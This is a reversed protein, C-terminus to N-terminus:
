RITGLRVLAMRVNPTEGLIIRQNQSLTFQQGPKITLSPVTENLVTFSELSRNKMHWTALVQNYEFSAKPTSDTVASPPKDPYLHWEYIHRDPYAVIKYGDRVFQGRMGSVPRFLDLVALSRTAQWKTGCWPCSLNQTENFAFFGMECNPNVCPIIRDALRVLASEWEVAQPRNSPHHLGDIFARQMLHQIENGLIDSTIKLSPPRNSHDTPHEIYLANQGLRLQEDEEANSSHFKPGLLPHKLLLIQYLLIALAHRDTLISPQANASVIEPAMFGPTGNVAPPLIGPIVLGDLDIIAIEGTTPDVLCNKYALDSHCLGMQHLRRTARSLRVSIRVYGLWNGRAAKPLTKRAKPLLIWDLRKLGSSARPMVVGLRPNIVVGTPWCFYQKWYPEDKVANFRTTIAELIQRQNTPPHFYLKVISLNDMSVFVEGQAGSDRPTDECLIINGNTLQVQM